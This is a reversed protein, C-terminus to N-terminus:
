VVSKRDSIEREALSRIHKPTRRGARGNSSIDIGFDAAIGKLVEPFQSRCNLHHKRAFFEFISGGEGCAHCFWRGAKRGRLELSLSPHRDEHFPCLVKTGNQGIRIDAFYRQYFATFDGAFHGVITQKASM